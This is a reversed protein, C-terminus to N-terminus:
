TYHTQRELAISHHLNLFRSKSIIFYTVEKQIRKGEDKLVKMIVDLGPEGM